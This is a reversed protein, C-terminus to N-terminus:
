PQKRGAMHSLYGVLDDLERDSLVSPPFASMRSKPFHRLAQPNRILTKLASPTLYETPSFPLNLDPGFESAGSRNLTHCPFCNKVFATFGRWERDGKALRSDPLIKPYLSALSGKVEFAQLQFPWEEQAIQSREPHDWILYFPGATTGHGSKLPPWASAAPEIALYARAHQDDDALLRAASIPAAFGDLCRFMIADEANPAAAALAKFLVSVKVARYTRPQGGYAPDATVSLSVLDPRALLDSRRLRVTKDGANLTLVPEKPAEAAMAMGLCESPTALNVVLALIMGVGSILRFAAGTAGSMTEGAAQLGHPATM